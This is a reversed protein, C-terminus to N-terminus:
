PFPTPDGPAGVLAGGSQRLTITADGSPLAPGLLRMAKGVPLQRPNFLGNLCRLTAAQAGVQVVPLLAADALPSAPPGTRTLVVTTRGDRFRELACLALGAEPWRQRPHACRAPDVRALRAVDTDPVPRRALLFVMQDADSVYDFGHGEILARALDLDEPTLAVWQVWAPLSGASLAKRLQKPLWLHRRDTHAVGFQWPIVAGVEAPIRDLLAHVQTLAPSRSTWTPRGPPHAPSLDLYDARFLGGGPLANAQHFGVAQIGLVVLGVAALVMRRKAAWGGLRTVGEATAVLFVPAVLMPYHTSLLDFGLRADIALFALGPLAPAMWRWGLAWLGGMTAGLLGFVALKTGLGGAAGEAFVALAGQTRADAVAGGLLTRGWLIYGFWYLGLVAALLWRAKRSLGGPQQTPLLVLAPGALMAFEERMAVALALLGVAGLSVHGRRWILSLGAYAFPVALLDPRADFLFPNIIAPSAVAVLGGLLVAAPTLWRGLASNQTARVLDLGFLTLTACLALSQAAILVTSAPALATFPALLYLGWHAHIALNPVGAIANPAGNAVGWLGHAYLAPDFSQAQAMTAGRWLLCGVALAAALGFLLALIRSLQTM